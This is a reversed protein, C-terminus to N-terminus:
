AAASTPEANLNALQRHLRAISIEREAEAQMANLQDYAVARVRDRLDAANSNPHSVWVTGLHTNSLTVAKGFAKACRALHDVSSVGDTPLDVWVVYATKGTLEAVKRRAQDPAKSTLFFLSGSSQVAIKTQM